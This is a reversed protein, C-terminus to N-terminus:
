LRIEYQVQKVSGERGEWPEPFQTEEAPQWRQRHGAVGRAQASLYSLPRPWLRPRSPAELM